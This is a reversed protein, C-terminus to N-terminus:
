EGTVSGDGRPRHAVFRCTPLNKRGVVDIRPLPRPRHSSGSPRPSPHPPGLSASRHEAALTSSSGSRGPSAPRGQIQRGLRHMGPLVHSAATSRLSSTDIHPPWPPPDLASSRWIASCATSWPQPGRRSRAACSLRGWLSCRPDDRLRLHWVRGASAIGCTRLKLMEFPRERAGVASATPSRARSDLKIWDGRRPLILAFLLLLALRCGCQRRRLSM